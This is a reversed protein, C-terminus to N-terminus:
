VLSGDNIMSPQFVCFYIERFIFNVYSSIFVSILTCAQCAVVGLENGLVMKNGLLTPLLELTGSPIARLVIFIWIRM